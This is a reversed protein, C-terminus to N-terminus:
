PVEHTCLTDEDSGELCWVPLGSVKASLGVAGLLGRSRLGVGLGGFGEVMFRFSGLGQM